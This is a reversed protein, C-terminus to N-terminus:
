HATTIQASHLRKSNLSNCLGISLRAPKGSASSQPLGDRGIARKKPAFLFEFLMLLNSPHHCSPEVGKMNAHIKFWNYSDNGKKVELEGLSQGGIHPRASLAKQKTTRPMIGM